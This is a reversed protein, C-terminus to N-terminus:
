VSMRVHFRNEHNLAAGSDRDAVLCSFDFSARDRDNGRVRRMAKNIGTASEEPLDTDVRRWFKNLRIQSCKAVYRM